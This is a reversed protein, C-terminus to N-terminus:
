PAVARAMALEMLAPDSPLPQREGTPSFGCREYLRLAPKNSETVWLHVQAQQGRRAREVIAEALASGVQRGRAQPRVWMSVLELVGPVEQISAVLGMPQQGSEPLYAVISNGSRARERWTEEPFAAERAYTSAFAYPADRLADLRIDRMAQWDDAGVTRLETM